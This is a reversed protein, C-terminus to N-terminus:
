IFEKGMPQDNLWIHDEAAVLASPNPEHAALLQALTHHPRTKPEIVMRNNKLRINVQSGPELALIKFTNPPITLMISDDVKRLKGTVLM